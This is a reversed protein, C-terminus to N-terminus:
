GVRLKEGAGPMVKGVTATGWKALIITFGMALVATVAIEPVNVRGRALISVVALVLLGQVDDIVAAVLIVKSAKEALLGRAALVRATIGVSTAVMAAGMFIGQIHPAGWLAFVGWGLLFPVIVGFTAVLTATGGVQFLESSKVELGVRFLLFMAGLNAMATLFDSPALWGLV